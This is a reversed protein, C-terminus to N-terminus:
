GYVEQELEEIMKVVQTSKTKGSEKQAIRRAIEDQMNKQDFPDIVMDFPLGGYRVCAKAMVVFGTTLNMGLEEFIKEVETKLGTDMRFNIQTTTKM